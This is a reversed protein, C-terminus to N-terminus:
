KIGAEKLLRSVWISDIGWLELCTFKGEKFYDRATEFNNFNFLDRGANRFIGFMLAACHDDIPLQEEIKNMVKCRLRERSLGYKAHYLNMDKRRARNRAAARKNSDEKQQQTKM